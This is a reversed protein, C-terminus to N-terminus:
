EQDPDIMGPQNIDVVEGHINIRVKFGLMGMYARGEAPIGTELLTEIHGDLHKLQQEIMARTFIDEQGLMKATQESIVQENGQIQELMHKLVQRDVLESPIHRLFGADNVVYCPEDGVYAVKVSQDNEDIVLGDFLAKRAM